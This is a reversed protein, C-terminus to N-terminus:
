VTPHVYAKMCGGFKKAMRPVVKPRLIVKEVASPLVQQTVCLQLSIVPFLKPYPYGPDVIRGARAIPGAFTLKDNQNDGCM